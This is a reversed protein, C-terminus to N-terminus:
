KTLILKNSKTVRLYYEENNFTLKIPFIEKSVLNEALDIKVDHSVHCSDGPKMTKVSNGRVEVFVNEGDDSWEVKCVALPIKNSQVRFADKNLVLNKFFNVKDEIM